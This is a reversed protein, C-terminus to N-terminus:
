AHAGTAAGPEFGPPEPGLTFPIPELEDITSGGVLEDEGSPGMEITGNVERVVAGAEDKVLYTVESTRNWAGGGRAAGIAVSVDAVDVTQVAKDRRIREVVFRM